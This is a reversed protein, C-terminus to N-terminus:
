YLLPFPIYYSSLNNQFSKCHEQEKEAKEWEEPKMQAVAVFVSSDEKFDECIGWFLFKWLLTQM